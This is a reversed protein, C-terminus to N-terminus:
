ITTGHQLVHTDQQTMDGLNRICFNKSVTIQQQKEMNAIACFGLVEFIVTLPTTISEAAFL